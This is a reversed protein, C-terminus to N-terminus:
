PVRCITQWSFALITGFVVHVTRSVTFTVAGDPVTVVSLAAVM